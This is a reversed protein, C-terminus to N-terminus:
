IRSRDRGSEFLYYLQQLVEFFISFYKDLSQRKLHMCEFCCQNMKLYHSCKEGRVSTGLSHMSNEHASFFGSIYTARWFVYIFYWLMEFTVKTYVPCTLLGQLILVIVGVVYYHRTNGKECSFFFFPVFFFLFLM